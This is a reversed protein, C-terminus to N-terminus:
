GVNTRVHSVLNWFGVMKSTRPLVEDCSSTYDGRGCNLRFPLGKDATVYQKNLINTAIRWTYIGNRWDTIQPGVM